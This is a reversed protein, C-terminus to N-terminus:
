ASPSMTSPSPSEVSTPPAFNARSILLQALVGDTLAITSRTFLGPPLAVAASVIWRSSRRARLALGTM